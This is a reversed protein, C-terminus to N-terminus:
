KTALFVSIFFIAPNILIEIKKHKNTQHHLFAVLITQNATKRRNKTTKVIELWDSLLLFIDKKQNTSIKLILVIILPTLVLQRFVTSSYALPDDL